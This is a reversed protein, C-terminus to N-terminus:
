GGRLQGGIKEVAKIVNGFIQTIVDDTLTKQLPEMSLQFAVSQFGQPVGAGKFIDFIEIAKISIVGNEVFTEQLSDSVAQRLSSATLTLPLLFAFDREVVPFRSTSGQKKVVFLRDHFAKLLIAANLEFVYCDTEIGYNKAVRPHLQGCFGVPVKTQNGLLASFKVRRGPHLADAFPHCEFTQMKEKELTIGLLRATEEVHAMVDFLSWCVAKTNQWNKQTKHGFCVGALRPTESPRLTKDKGFSYDFSHEPSYEFLAPIFDALLRKRVSEELSDLPLVREGTRTMNQFTRCNHFLQGSKVGHNLNKEVKRLLDPLLTTHLFPEDGIIPNLLVVPEGLQNMSALCLKDTDDARMFHLGIVEAYGLSALISSLKELFSFHSDDRSSVVPAIIPQSPVQDIGVVRICEEVLDAPGIIDQDRWSPITIELVHESKNKISLGLSRLIRQQNEFSIIESGLIEKQMDISFEVSRPVFEPAILAKGGDQQSSFVTMAPLEKGNLFELLAFLKACAAYRQATDIGKEFLFAADTQKGHRRSTRRISVPPPSAFEVVINKTEFTVKSHEGGMVGLLAHCDNGDVVVFDESSLLSEKQDLGLFKESAQAKRITLCKNKSHIDIKDADFAHSPQGFTVALLQTADALTNVSKLGLNELIIRLWSPSPGVSIDPICAFFVPFEALNQSKIANDGFKAERHVLVDKKIHDATVRTTKFFVPEQKTFSINEHEFGVALERAVGAHCLMDPRNPTVSLELTVDELSLVEFLSHGVKQALNKEQDEWILDSSLEWIGTGDIAKDSPLGIEERACLMGFSKVGRIETPLIELGSPLKVGPLAVAVYLGQRANAAGCVIQLNERQGVDVACVQLKQANPHPNTEIIKGVVVNELGSGIFSVKEVEFGQRTLLFSIREADYIKKVKQKGNVVTDQNLKPLSLFMELLKLSVIM